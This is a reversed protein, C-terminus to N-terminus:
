KKGVFADIAMSLRPLIQNKRSVVDQLVARELGESDVAFADDVVSKLAGAGVIISGNDAISTFVVVLLDLGHKQVYDEMSDEFTDHIADLETFHYILIQSVMIKKGSIYFTKIDQNIIDEYDKNKLGSTAEYMEQAFDFRDLGSISELQMAIKFDQPTTTPSKLNLTDSILASLLLSAVNKPIEVGHENYLKTIISATSGIIENRFYIPKVTNIDGIRHHDIVELIEADEAGEVSQSYENHDVLIIKKSTNNLIHYRSVFGYINGVDDVVPYSRYRTKLMSRGVDDVFENFNYHVLDTTMVERVSPAFLLYRSTNMTGHTSKIVACDYQRALDLVEEEIVDTWVMVICAAGKQIATMQSDTDNGVIVLRDTLEYNELKTKSIAIISTKGNFHFKVPNYILEGDIARAIAKASTRKLLSITHATDGMAVRALNSSTVVGLLQNRDDVVALTQRKEETIEMATKISTDIHISLAEDMEIEDLTARADKLLMPAEFGFRELLFETEDSLKGLRCAVAPIGIENKLHAYAIASVVSDTDPHRHGCIHVLDKENKM